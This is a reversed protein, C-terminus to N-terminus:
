YVVLSASLFLEVKLEVYTKLYFMKVNHIHYVFNELASFNFNSMFKGIIIEKM